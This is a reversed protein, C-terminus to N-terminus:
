GQGEGGCCPFQPGSYPFFQAGPAIGNFKTLTQSSGNMVWVNGFVDIVMGLANIGVSYTSIITGSSNLEILTNNGTSAVWIDGSTDVAVSKPASGPSLSFTGLIVGNPNLKTVTNTGSNGVWLNGSPDFSLAKPSSGVADTGLLVGSSSLETVTNGAGTNTIWANGFQDFAISSPTPGANSFVGLLTGSPSIKVVSNTTDNNTAWINGAPDIGIGRPNTLGNGNPFTVLITGGPNVEQISGGGGNVTWANGQSDIASSVNVASTTSLVTGQQNIRLGTGGVFINGSADASIARNGAGVTFTNTIPALPNNFTFGSPMSSSTLTFGTNSNLPFALTYLSSATNTSNSLANFGSELLSVASTGASSTATTFLTSCSSPSEICSAFANAMTKLGNQTATGLNSNATNVNGSAILNSYQAVINTAGSSNGPANLSLAGNTDQLIGFNFAILETAATTLENIRLGTLPAATTGAISLFQNNATTGHGANGSSSALYLLSNGGPNTFVLNFSGDSATNASAIPTPNGAIMLNITANAVSALGGNVSGNMSSGFSGSGGSSGTLVGSKTCSVFFAPLLLVLVLMKKM